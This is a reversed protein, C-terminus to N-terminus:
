AESPHSVSPHPAPCGTEEYATFSYMGDPSSWHAVPSISKALSGLQPPFPQAAWASPYVEWIFLSSCRLTKSPDTPTIVTERVVTCGRQPIAGSVLYPVAIDSDEFYISQVNGSACSNRIQAALANRFVAFDTRIEERQPTFITHGGIRRGLTWQGLAFLCVAGALCGQWVRRAGSNM